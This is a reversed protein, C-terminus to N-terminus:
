KLLTKFWADLTGDEIEDIAIQNFQSYHIWQLLKKIEEADKGKKKQLRRWKKEITEESYTRVKKLFAHVVFAMVELKLKKAEDRYKSHYLPMKKEMDATMLNLRQIGRLKSRPIPKTEAGGGVM